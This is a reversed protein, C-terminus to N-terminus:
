SRVGDAIPKLVKAEVIFPGFPLLAGIIIIATRKLPWGDENIQAQLAAACLALFLIGHAMGVVSVAKFGDTPSEASRKTMSFENAGGCGIPHDGQPMGSTKRNIRVTTRGIAPTINSDNHHILRIFVGLAM